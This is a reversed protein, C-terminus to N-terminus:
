LAGAYNSEKILFGRMMPDLANEEDVLKAIKLLTAALCRAEQSSITLVFPELDTFEFGWSMLYLDGPGFYNALWMEYADLDCDEVDVFKSKIDQPPAAFVNLVDV